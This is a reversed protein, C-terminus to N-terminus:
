GSIFADNTPKPETKRSPNNAEKQHVNATDFKIKPMKWSPPLGVFGEMDKAQADINTDLMLTPRHAPYISDRKDAGENRSPHARNQTAKSPPIIM